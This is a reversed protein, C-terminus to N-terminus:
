FPTTTLFTTTRFSALTWLFLPQWFNPKLIIITLFITAFLTATEFINMLLPRLFHTLSIYSYSISNCSIHAFSTTTLFTTHSILSCSIYNNFFSTTLFTTTTTLLTATFLHNHNYCIYSYHIDKSSIYNYFFPTKLCTTTLFHNYSIYSYSIRNSSIHNYSM